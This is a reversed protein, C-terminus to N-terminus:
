VQLQRWHMVAGCFKHPLFAASDEMSSISPDLETSFIDRRQKNLYYAM